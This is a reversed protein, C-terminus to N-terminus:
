RLILVQTCEVRVYKNNQINLKGRPRQTLPVYRPSYLKIVHSGNGKLINKDTLYLLVGHSKQLSMCDRILLSLNKTGWM